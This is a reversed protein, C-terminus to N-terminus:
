DKAVFLVLQAQLRLTLIVTCVDQPMRLAWIMTISLIKSMTDGEDSCSDEKDVDVFCSPGSHVGTGQFATLM